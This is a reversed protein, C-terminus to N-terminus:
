YDVPNIKALHKYVNYFDYIYIIFLTHMYIYIYIYVSTYIYNQKDM